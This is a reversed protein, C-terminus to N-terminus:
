LISVDGEVAKEMYINLSSFSFPFVLFHRLCKEKKKEGKYTFPSNIELRGNSAPLPLVDPL